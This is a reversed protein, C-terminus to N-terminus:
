RAPRPVLLLTLLGALVSSAFMLAFAAEYGGSADFVAAGVWAGVGGAMHHLMVILGTIAGLNAAGFAERAFLVLVPATMLFTVGFILAFAAIAAASQDVLILAFAAIRLLFSALTPAVPGSRDSWAGSAIVGAFGVLGMLALLHGALLIDVGRDQAFAVVHTTVFFDDLGCLVYVAVLLWFRGTRAAAALDMSGGTSPGAMSPGHRDAGQRPVLLVSPLLALHAIGGWLFVARWGSQALVFAFAAIIVLQGASMGASVLGNALGTRHPFARSVMLAVPTMSAIGNGAAFVVGYLLLLQWPASVWFMAAMGAASVALGAGLVARISLRDALRGALFMCASTVALYCAVTLGLTTRGIALEESIPKLALGIAFRAGGGVFLVLFGVALVIFADSSPSARSRM